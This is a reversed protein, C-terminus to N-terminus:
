EERTVACPAVDFMEKSSDHHCDPSPEADHSEETSVLGRTAHEKQEKSPAASAAVWEQRPVRVASLSVSTVSFATKDDSTRRRKNPAHDQTESDRARKGGADTRAGLIARKEATWRALKMRVAASMKALLRAKQAPSMLWWPINDDLLGKQDFDHKCARVIQRVITEDSAGEFETGLFYARVIGEIQYAVTPEYTRSLHDIIFFKRGERPLTCLT